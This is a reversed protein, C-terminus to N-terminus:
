VGQAGPHSGLITSTMQEMNPRRWTREGMHNETGAPIEKSVEPMTVRSQIEIGERGPVPEWPVGKMAEMRGRDWQEGESGKRSISRM